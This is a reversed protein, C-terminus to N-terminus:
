ITIKGTDDADFKGEVTLEGGDKIFLQKKNHVTYTKDAPVTTKKTITATYVSSSYSYESVTPNVSSASQSVSSISTEEIDSCGCLLVAAACFAIIKKM